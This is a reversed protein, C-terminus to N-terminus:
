DRSRAAMAPSADDGGGGISARPRVESLMKDLAAMPVVLRRGIKLVPLEGRQAANYAAQRNLGLRRGAEPVTLTLCEERSKRARINKRKTTKRKNRKM